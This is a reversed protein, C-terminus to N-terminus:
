TKKRGRKTYIFIIKSDAGCKKRLQNNIVFIERMKICWWGFIIWGSIMTVIIAVVIIM